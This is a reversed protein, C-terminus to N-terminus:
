ASTVILHSGVDIIASTIYGVAKNLDRVGEPTLLGENALTKQANVVSEAAQDLAILAQTTQDM